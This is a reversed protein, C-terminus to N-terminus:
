DQWPLMRIFQDMSYERRVELRNLYYLDGWGHIISVGLGVAATYGSNAVANAVDADIMGFPYAFTKVEVGYRQSLELMSDNVEYSLSDKNQTLDVHSMSHSGIEWGADILKFVEDSTIYGPADIWTVILYSTAVFDYKELVPLANLAMDADGDDFTIVVPREPMKGGLRILDALQSITIAQYHHDYLWKMQADFTEVPIFYRNGTDDHDVHHYLLIPVTLTEGAAIDIMMPTATPTPTETPIPTNTSLLMTPTIATESNLKSPEGPNGNMLPSSGPNLSSCANLLFIGVVMLTILKISSKPGM